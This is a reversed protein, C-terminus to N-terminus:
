RSGRGRGAAELWFAYRMAGFSVLFPASTVADRLGVHTLPTIVDARLPHLLSKARRSTSWGANTGAAFVEADSVGYMRCRTVVESWSAKGLEEVYADSIAFTAGLERAWRECLESDDSFRRAPDYPHARLLDGDFLTPTGIVAAPGPRFRGRRWINLGHTVYDGGILRTQASVGQLGGAVLTDLMRELQGAPMVNDSGMNLVYPLTTREIGVNRAHGLGLRPDTVVEDALQEAVERTGDTSSADVVILQGVGAARLSTLCAEISSISDLTCVVASVDAAGASM